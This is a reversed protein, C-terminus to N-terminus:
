SLTQWMTLQTIEHCIYSSRPAQVSRATFRSTAALSSSSAMSRRCDSGLVKDSRRPRLFPDFARATVEPTMGTGTDSIFIGVYQGAPIEASVAYADDLYVNAAEITLKGGEPMADRANIALNLLSGELHNADVSTRWLGGGLVTEIVISEGLTRRLMESMGTILTNAPLSTPVLTQRRAFALLRHTLTAARTSARLAANGLRELRGGPEPLHRLLTEINGSIVLLLNNFDHAIGGTLQGIAEM